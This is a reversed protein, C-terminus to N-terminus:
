EQTNDPEIPDAQRGRRGFARTYAAGATQGVPGYFTDAVDRAAGFDFLFGGITAAEKRLQDMEKGFDKRRAARKQSYELFTSFLSWPTKTIGRYNAFKLQESEIKQPDLETDKGHELVPYVFGMLVRDVHSQNQMDAYGSGFGFPFFGNTSPNEEFFDLYMRREVPDPCVRVLPFCPDPSRGRVVRVGFDDKIYGLIGASYPVKVKGGRRNIEMAESVMIDALFLTDNKLGDAYGQTIERAM